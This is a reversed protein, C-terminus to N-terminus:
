LFYPIHIDQILNEIKTYFKNNNSYVPEAGFFMSYTIKSLPKDNVLFWTKQKFLSLKQPSRILQPKSKKELAKYM